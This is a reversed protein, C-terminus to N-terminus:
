LKIIQNKVEQWYESYTYSIKTQWKGKTNTITHVNMIKTAELIEDVSVLACYKATLNCQEINNKPLMKKHENYLHNAQQIASKSHKM